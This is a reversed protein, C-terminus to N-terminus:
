PPGMMTATSVGPNTVGLVLRPHFTHDLVHPAVEEGAFVEGVEGVSLGSGLHPTGVLGALADVAGGTLARRHHEGLTLGCQQQGGWCRDVLHRDVSFGLHVAVVV